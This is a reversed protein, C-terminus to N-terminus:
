WWKQRELPVEFEHDILESNTFIQGTQETFVLEGNELTVTYWGPKGNVELFIMVQNFYVPSIDQMVFYDYNYKYVLMDEPVQFQIITPIKERAHKSFFLSTPLWGSFFMKGDRSRQAELGNELLNKLEGIDNLAIGRYGVPNQSYLAPPIYIKKSELGDPFVVSIFEDEKVMRASSVVNRQVPSQTHLWVRPQDPLNTIQIQADAANPCFMMKIYRRYKTHSHHYKVHTFPAKNTLLKTDASPAHPPTERQSKEPTATPTNASKQHRTKTKVKAKLGPHSATKTPHFLHTLGRRQAFAPFVFFCILYVILWKRM